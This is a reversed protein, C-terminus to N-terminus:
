SFSKDTYKIYQSYKNTCNQESKPPIKGFFFRFYDRGCYSGDAFGSVNMIAVDFRTLYVPSSIGIIEIGQYNQINVLCHSVLSIYENLNTISLGPYGAQLPWHASVSNGILSSFHPQLAFINPPLQFYLIFLMKYSLSYM